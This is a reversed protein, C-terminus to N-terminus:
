IYSFCDVFLGSIHGDNHALAAKLGYIIAKHSIYFTLLDKKCTKFQICVVIGADGEIQHRSMYLCTIM